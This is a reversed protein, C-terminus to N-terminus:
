KYNPLNCNIDGLVISMVWCLYWQDFFMQFLSEHGHFFGPIRYMKSFDFPFRPIEYIMNAPYRLSWVVRNATGTTPSRVIIIADRLLDVVQCGTLLLVGAFVVCGVLTSGISPRRRLRRSLM